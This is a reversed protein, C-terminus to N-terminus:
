EEEQLVAEDEGLRVRHWRRGVLSCVLLLSRRESSQLRRVHAPCELVGALECHGKPSMVLIHGRSEVMTQLAGVENHFDPCNSLVYDMSMSKDRGKPDDDEITEVMGNKWMGREFLVQKKGKAQGVYDALPLDPKYFPPPDPKGDTAGADRREEASRFYFYQLEGLKLTAGEQLCGEVMRSPHPISQKGGANVSMTSVNLADLRHKAHGSSWDVELLVQANPYICEYMDLVDTVQEAFHEHTWYGEKQKGYSLFRVAPSGALADRGRAKRFLNLTALEAQTIPHGFGRLEDKFGSIMEGPGDTKKRLGRVGRVVWQYSSKQYAKFISEDQGVHILPASCRCVGEIHGVQCDKAKPQTELFEHLAELAGALNGEKEWTVEDGTPDDEDPWDWQVQYEVVDFAKNEVLHTCVRRGIIRKVKYEEDDANSEADSREVATAAENVAAILRAQLVAKLGDTPLSLANLQIKLDFVKMKNIAAISPLPQQSPQVAAAGDGDDQLAAEVAAHPPACILDAGPHPLNAPPNTLASEKPITGPFRVSFNGGLPLVARRADFSDDLDVHLEVMPTGNEDRFHHVLVGEPPLRPKMADFEDLGVHLWLPQRYALEDMTAIYKARDEIVLPDQHKDNYYSQKYKDRVINIARM